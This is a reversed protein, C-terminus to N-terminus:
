GRVERATREPTRGAPHTPELGLLDLLHLNIGRTVAIVPRATASGIRLRLDPLHYFIMRGTPRVKQSGPCLGQM